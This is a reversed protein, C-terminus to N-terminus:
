CVKCCHAHRCASASTAAALCSSVREVSWCVLRSHWSSRSAWSRVRKSCWLDASVITLSIACSCNCWCCSCCTSASQLAWCSRASTASPFSGARCAAASERWVWSAVAADFRADFCASHRALAAPSCLFWCAQARPTMPWLVVCTCTVHQQATLPVHHAGASCLSTTRPAVVSSGFGIVRTIVLLQGQRM